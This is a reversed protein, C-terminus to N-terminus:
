VMAGYELCYGFGVVIRMGDRSRFLARSFGGWILCMQTQPTFDKFFHLRNVIEMQKFLPIHEILKM